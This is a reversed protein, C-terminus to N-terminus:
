SALLNGAKLPFGNSMLMNVDGRWKVKDQLLQVYGMDVKNMQTTLGVLTESYCVTEM